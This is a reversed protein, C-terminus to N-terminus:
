QGNIFHDSLEFGSEEASCDTPKLELRTGTNLVGQDRQCTVTEWFPPPLVNTLTPKVVEFTPEKLVLVVFNLTDFFPPGCVTMTVKVAPVEGPVAKATM